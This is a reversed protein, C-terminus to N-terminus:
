YKLFDRTNLNSDFFLLKYILSPIEVFVVFLLYM